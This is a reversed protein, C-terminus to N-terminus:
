SLQELCVPDQPRVGTKVRSAPKGFVRLQVASVDPHLLKLVTSDLSRGAEQVSLQMTDIEQLQGFANPM